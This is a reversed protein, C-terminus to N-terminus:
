TVPNFFYWSNAVVRDRILLTNLVYMEVRSLPNLFNRIRIGSEGFVHCYDKFTSQMVMKEGQQPVRAARAHKIKIEARAARAM